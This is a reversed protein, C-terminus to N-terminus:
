DPRADRIRRREAQPREPRPPTPRPRAEPRTRAEPRQKANPCDACHGDRPGAQQRQTQRQRDMQARRQELMEARRQRMEQARQRMEPARERAQERRQELRQRMRDRMEARPADQPPAPRGEARRRPGEPRAQGCTPCKEGAATAERRPQPQPRRFEEVPPAQAALLILATTLIM